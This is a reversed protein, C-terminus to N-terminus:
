APPDNERNAEAQEPSPTHSPDVRDAGRGAERVDGGEAPQDHQTPDTPRESTMVDM